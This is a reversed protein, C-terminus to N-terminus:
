LFVIFYIFLFHINYRFVCGTERKKFFLHTYSVQERSGFVDHIKARFIYIRERVISIIMIIIIIIIIIMIITINYNYYYCYNYHHRHQQQHKRTCQLFKVANQLWRTMISQFKSRICHRKKEIHTNTQKNKLLWRLDNPRTWSAKERGPVSNRSLVTNNPTPRTM